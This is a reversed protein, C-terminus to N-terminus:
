DKTPSSILYLAWSLGSRSQIRTVPLEWLTLSLRLLCGHGGDLLTSQEWARVFQSWFALALDPMFVSRNQKAFGSWSIALRLRLWVLVVALSLGLKSKGFSTVQVEYTERIEAGEFPPDTLKLSTNVYFKSWQQKLLPASTGQDIQWM